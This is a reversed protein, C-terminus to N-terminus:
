VSSFRLSEFILSSMTRLPSCLVPRSGIDRGIFFYGRRKSNIIKTKAKAYWAEAAGFRKTVVLYESVVATILVVVLRTRVEIGTPAKGTRMVVVGFRSLAKTQLPCEEFTETRSVTACVFM